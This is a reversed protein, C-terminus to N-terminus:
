KIVRFYANRTSWVFFDDSEGLTSHGCEKLVTSHYAIFMGVKWVLEEGKLDEDKYYTCYTLFARKAYLNYFKTNCLLISSYIHDCHDNPNFEGDSDLINLMIDDKVISLELDLIAEVTEILESWNKYKNKGDVTTLQMIQNKKFKKLSQFSYHAFGSGDAAGDPLRLFYCTCSGITTQSINKGNFSKSSKSVKCVTGTMIINMKVSALAGEERAQWYEKKNGADGATTHIIITKCNADRIDRGVQPNMFLQWDDQHPVFYVAARQYEKM